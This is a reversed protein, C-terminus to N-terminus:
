RDPRHTVRIANIIAKNKKNLFRLDVKGDSVTVIFKRTEAALPGVEYVVDHWPLVVQDELLVDFMRQGARSVTLDAFLLEVEYVGNPTGDFRYAYPDQRLNQFLGQESTGAITKKTSVVAGQFYGYSGAAWKKDAVWSEQTSDTFASGGANIATRYKSVVLSVPIKMLAQRASNSSVYITALYVVPAMGATNVTVGLNVSGGPAVSGSTPNVSLWPVDTFAPVGSEVLYVTRTSQAVMWLNGSEDMELGAGNFYPSPHAITGLV